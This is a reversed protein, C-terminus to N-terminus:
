ELDLDKMNLKHVLRFGANPMTIAFFFDSVCSVMKVNCLIVSKAIKKWQEKCM